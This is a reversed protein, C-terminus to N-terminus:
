QPITKFKDIGMLIGAVAHFLMGVISLGFSLALNGIAKAGYIVVALFIFVAAAIHGGVAAKYMIDTKLKEYQLYLVTVVLSAFGALVGLIAFAQTAKFWSETQPNPECFFIGCKTFLGSHPGTLSLLLDSWQSTWIPTALGVLHFICGALACGISIKFIKTTDMIAM